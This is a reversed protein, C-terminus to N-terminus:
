GPVTRPSPTFTSSFATIPLCGASEGRDVAFRSGSGAVSIPSPVMTEVPAITKAPDVIPERTM